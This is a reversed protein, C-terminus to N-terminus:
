PRTPRASRQDLVAAYADAVQQMMGELALLRALSARRYQWHRWADDPWDEDHASEVAAAYFEFAQLLQANRKSPDAATLADNENREAFRALANPEGVDAGKQYWLWAKPTDTDFARAANASQVRNEFLRGLKFAAILVGGDWAQEYLSAARGPDPKGASADSLLDALDVRAARYGRRAAMEFQQQGANADGRAVLTRGMQYDARAAHRPKGIEASCASYAIDGNVNEMLVGPTLRDPDYVSAAARDCASGQTPWARARSDRPLGLEARDVESLPDTQASSDWLIQDELRASERAAWIRATHDSSATVIYSGDPSYAAFIVSDRHGALVRLQVGTRADWIRATKDDSATVIQTGDPSYAASRVIDGHGALIGLQAGTRADWIRATKDFSATVIRTGDPSYAASHVRDSHGALVSLQAGTRADWIRATSDNSGTVIRTGDPSYHASPISRTHGRLVTLAAGGRADWIRAMFDNSGTVIRTGDPSYAACLVLAGHGSLMAVESGNRADWIRATGDQLGTVIHTNDPSYAAGYVLGGHSSLVTLQAGGRADWIRATEDASATVIRAGDPSYAASYVIDDHGSLVTLQAGIRTDWLRATKDDSATVIRTGDPSYAATHVRDRHGFLVAVEAGTRADWIRATKDFAATVIHTGDPSYRASSVAHSHGSLVALPAGSRADWIRATKDASATVIHTGDPSFFASNVFSTHGSLVILQAGTRADWLRATKDGSATVIQSGDPSFTAAIVQDGHGSLIALSAGTRVDWLRATKDDSATVIRTGDPSYAASNVDKLHGALLVLQAGTRADWLRATKDDSATVIRTGDPSYAASNLRRGNAYLVGLEAGTRADWIRATSDGSATVIRTGDPSYAASEVGGRHGSLVGRQMDSARIDQFVSIAAPTRAFASNALVELIIGQAGAADFDKLRQAAVQTLLRGQAELARAAQYQAEHKQRVAILGTGSAVIALVTMMGIVMAAIRHRRIFKRLQYASSAPRALVPEDHLYRRLDAALEAPAGYRRERDREIAKMTIWDLDGRLLGVLQKPETNRAAASTASTEFDASLKSSPRRPEEERLRRLWEELSPRQQGKMEFPQMGTLLVYLVVGLSYVDTRTDIDRINPNVQEPSMYGPTGLFQGFRTHLADDTLHPSTAKALGFDIIRPVPKGDVEIVLINAPKLDRHIVAKQHAHQVGECAHIFLELRERIKLKKQDCYETITLGPVYEMVFYPQGQPTIGADFVKAIAPHDMIALSQREAQFRQVVTEDYMGAKILKLAVPRRVPATQEALWVQGMGGEGLRRILQFRQAFIQGAALGVDFGGSDAGPKGASPAELFEASLGDGVALLAELEARLEADSACVEDLFKARSQPNLAAAEYLLDKVRGWSPATVAVSGQEDRSAVLDAGYGL